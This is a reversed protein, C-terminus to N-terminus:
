STFGKIASLVDQTTSVESAAKSAHSGINLGGRKAFEAMDTDEVGDSNQGFGNGFNQSSTSSNDTGNSNNSSSQTSSSIFGFDKLLDEEKPDNYDEVYSLLLKASSPYLGSSFSVYSRFREVRGRAKNLASVLTRTSLSKKQAKQVAANKQVDSDFLTGGNRRAKELIHDMLNYQYLNDLIEKKQSASLNQWVAEYNNGYTKFKKDKIYDSARSLNGLKVLQDPLELDYKLLINGLKAIYGSETADIDSNQDVLQWDLRDIEASSLESANEDCGPTNQTVIVFLLNKSFDLVGNDTKKNQLISLMMQRIGSDSQRNFEDLHLVCKKEYRPDLLPSINPDSAAYAYVVESATAGAATMDDMLQKQFPTKKLKKTDTEVYPLGSFLAEINSSLMGVKCLKLGKHSMIYEVWSTVTSTKGSGPLGQILVNDTDPNENEMNELASEYADNLIDVIDSKWFYSNKAGPDVVVATDASVKEAEAKLNSAIKVQDAQSITKEGETQAEISDAVQQGIEKVSDSTSIIDSEDNLDEILYNRKVKM